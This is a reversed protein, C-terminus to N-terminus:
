IFEVTPSVSNLQKQENLFLSIALNNLFQQTHFRQFPLNLFQFEIAVMSFFLNLLLLDLLCDFVFRLGRKEFGSSSNSFQYEHVSLYAFM